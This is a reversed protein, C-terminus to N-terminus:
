LKFIVNIWEENNRNKRADTSKQMEVILINCRDAINRIIDENIYNNIM